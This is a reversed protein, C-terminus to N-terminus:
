IIFIMRLESPEQVDVMTMSKIVNKAECYSYPDSTGGENANSSASM